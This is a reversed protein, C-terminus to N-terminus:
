FTSVDSKSTDFRRGPSYENRKRTISSSLLSCVLVTRKIAVPPSNVDMMLFFRSFFLEREAGM